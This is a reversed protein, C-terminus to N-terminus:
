ASFVAKGKVVERKVEGAKVLKTLVPSVKQPSVECKEALAKATVPEEATQVLEFVQREFAEQEAQKALAKPGAKRERSAEKEVQALMSELKEITEVQGDVERLCAIARELAVKKTMKTMTDVESEANTTNAEGQINM